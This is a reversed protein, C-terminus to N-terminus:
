RITHATPSRPAILPVIAMDVEVTSRQLGAGVAAREQSRVAGGNVAATGGNVVVTIGDGDALRQERRRAVTNVADRGEGATSAADSDGDGRRESMVPPPAVVAATMVPVVGM